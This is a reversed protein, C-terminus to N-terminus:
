YVDGFDSNVDTNDALVDNVTVDILQVTSGGLSSTAQIDVQFVNDGDLDSPNEFDPSDNFSLVGTNPNITFLDLDQASTESSDLIRFTITEGPNSDANTDVNIVFSDNEDISINTIEGPTNGIIELAGLVPDSADGEAVDNVTVDILQFASGGLSSTAEIDVQFVNDGDLDLPNEFDPADIFSLVGTNPNITFL